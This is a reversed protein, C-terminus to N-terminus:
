SARIRRYLARTGYPRPEGRGGRHVVGGRRSLPGRAYRGCGGSEKTGGHQLPPAQGERGQSIAAAYPFFRMKALVFVGRSRNLYAVFFAVVLPPLRL